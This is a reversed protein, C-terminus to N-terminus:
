GSRLVLEGEIEIRIPATLFQQPNILYDLTTSVISASNQRYSSIDLRFASDSDDFSYIHPRTPHACLMPYIIEATRDNATILAKPCGDRYMQEVLPQLDRAILSNVLLPMLAAGPQPNLSPPTKLTTLFDNIASEVHAYQAMQTLQEALKHPQHTDFLRYMRLQQPQDTFAEELGLARQRCWHEKGFPSLYAVPLADQNRVHMGLAKGCRFGYSSAIIKINPNSRILPELPVISGADHVVVPVNWRATARILTSIQQHQFGLVHIIIGFPRTDTSLFEQYSMRQLQLNKSQCIDELTRWYAHAEPSISLEQQRDAFPTVAILLAHPGHSILTDILQFGRKSIRIRGRELLHNLATNLPQRSCGYREMLEKRSPLVGQAAFVNNRLDQELQEAILLWKKQGQVPEEAAGLKEGMGEFLARSILRVGQRQTVSLIGHDRYVKLAQIITRPSFHGERALVAIPALRDSNDEHAAMIKAELFNLARDSSKPEKKSKQM